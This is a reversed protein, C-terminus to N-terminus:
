APPATHFQLQEPDTILANGGRDNVKVFYDQPEPFKARIKEMVMTALGLAEPYNDAQVAFPYTDVVTNSGKVYVCVVACFWVNTM